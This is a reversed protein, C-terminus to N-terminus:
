RIGTRTACASFSGSAAKARASATPASRARRSWGGGPAPAACRDNPNCNAEGADREGSRSQRQHNLLLSKRSRRAQFDPRRPFLSRADRLRGSQQSTARKPRSSVPSGCGRSASRADRTLASDEYSLEAAFLSHPLVGNPTLRAYRSTQSRGGFCFAAKRQVNSRFAQTLELLSPM